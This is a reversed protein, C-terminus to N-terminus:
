YQLYTKYIYADQGNYRIGQWLPDSDSRLEVVVGGDLNFLIPTNTSKGVRVHVFSVTTATPAKAVPPAVPAAAPQAVAPDPTVAPTDTAPAPTTDTKPAQTTETTTKDSGKLLDISPGVVELTTVIGSVALVAIVLIVRDMTM